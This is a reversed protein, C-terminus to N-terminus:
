SLGSFLKQILSVCTELIRKLVNDKSSFPSCWRLALKGISPVDDSTNIVWRLEELTDWSVSELKSDWGLSELSEVELVEHDRNFGDVSFALDSLGLEGELHM